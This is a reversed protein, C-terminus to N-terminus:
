ALGSEANWIAASHGSCRASCGCGGKPRLQWDWGMVTRESEAVFTLAGSTEMM